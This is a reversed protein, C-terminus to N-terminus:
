VTNKINETMQGGFWQECTVIYLVLKTDTTKLAMCQRDMVMWM